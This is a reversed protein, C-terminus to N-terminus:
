PSFLTANRNHGAESHCTICKNEPKEPEQMAAQHAFRSISASSKGLLNDHCHVCTENSMHNTVKERIALADYPPGFHHKYLDKAGAYAKAVLHSFYKEKPPLHCDVCDVTVGGQNNGHVSLEWTQYATNMEHCASGCYENTSVPKMAANISLFCLVSFTLGCLFALGWRKAVLIGWRVISRIRNKM